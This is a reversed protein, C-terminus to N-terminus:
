KSDLLESKKIFRMSPNVKRGPASTSAAYSKQRGYRAESESIPKAVKGELSKLIQRLRMAYEIMSEGRRQKWEWRCKISIQKVGAWPRLHAADKDDPHTTTRAIKPQETHRDVFLWRWIEMNKFAATYVNKTYGNHDPAFKAGRRTLYKVMELQAHLAAVLLPTGEDDFINDIDIGVSLLDQLAEINGTSAALYLLSRAGTAVSDAIPLAKGRSLFRHILRYARAVNTLYTNHATLESWARCSSWEIDQPIISKPYNRLLHRLVWHDARKMIWYMPSIHFIDLQHLDLHESFLLTFLQLEVTADHGGWLVMHIPAHGHRNLDNSQDIKYLFKVLDVNGRKCALMLPTDQSAPIVAKISAGRGLLLKTVDISGESAALLLPTYGLKDRYELKAGHNTLLEAAAVNNRDAAMHLATEDLFEPSIMNVVKQVPYAIRKFETLLIGLGTANDERVAAHLPTRSLSAFEGGEALYRQLLSPLLHNYDEDAIAAELATTFCPSNPGEFITSVAAGRKILFEVSNPSLGEMLAFMLPTVRWPKWFAIDIPLGRALYRECVDLDGKKLASCFSKALRILTRTSPNSLISNEDANRDRPRLIDILEVNMSRYAYDLPTMGHTDYQWKAGLRLLERTCHVNGEKVALHMPSSGDHSRRDIDCGKEHLFRIVSDNDRLAAYHMPTQLADDLEELNTLWKSQLYLQMCELSDVAAALHFANGGSLSRDRRRWKQGWNIGFNHSASHDALRRLFETSNAIVSFLAADLGLHNTLGPDAGSELLIEATTFSRNSLHIHLGTNFDYDVADAPVGAELIQRLKWCARDLCDKYHTTNALLHIVTEGCTHNNQLGLKATNAHSLLCKLHGQSIPVDPVCALEMPSLLDARRHADVGNRLLQTTLRQDDHIIAHSLLRTVVDNDVVCKRDEIGPFLDLLMQSLCDWGTLRGAYPKSLHKFQRKASWGPLQTSCQESVEAALFLFASNKYVKEYSSILGVNIVHCVVEEIWDVSGLNKQLYRLISSCLIPWIGAQGEKQSEESAPLLEERVGHLLKTDQETSRELLSQFPMQGDKRRRFCDPFLKVLEEVFLLTSSQHIHHLPSGSASDFEDLEVGLSSLHRVLRLSGSRAAQQYLSAKSKWFSKPPCHDLLMDVAGNMQRDLALCIPTQGASSATQLADYKDSSLDVLDALTEIDGDRICLHWITDGNSNKATTSVNHRLLTQITNGGDLRSQSLHIPRTGRTTMAEPNNGTDLLLELVASSGSSCALHVATWEESGVTFRARKIYTPKNSEVIRELAVIDNNVIVSKLVHQPPKCRSPISHINEPIALMSLDMRRDRAFDYVITYLSTIPGQGRRRPKFCGLLALVTSDHIYYVSNTEIDREAEFRNRVAVVDKQKVVLGRRIMYQITKFGNVSLASMCMLEVLTKQQFPTSLRPTASAGAELLVYATNCIDIPSWIESGISTVLIERINDKTSLFVSLGGLACHLPTGFRSKLNIKAGQDMLYECLYPLGLLAAVHLPTFDPRLIAVVVTMFGQEERLHGACSEISEGFEFSRKRYYARMGDEAILCDHNGTAWAAVYAILWQQLCASKAESFFIRLLDMIPSDNHVGNSSLGAAHSRLCGTLTVAFATHILREHQRSQGPLYEIQTKDAVPKKDFDKLMLYRLCIEGVALYAKQESVHFFGIAERKPDVSELFEQVTYHSFEFREGDASKRILSSCRLLIDYEDIMDDESIQDSDEQVSLAVRVFRVSSQSVRILLLTKLVLRRITEGLKTAKMLIREYTAPLTPPLKSLANRRERDSPLEGLYDLQCAVWRFMGKANHVLKQTIEAKLEPNGIRIRRSATRSELESLVYLQIDDTNAEIEIHAFNLNLLDHIQVEDRSLFLMNMSHSENRRSIRSLTDVSENTDCEDLGDIVVFVEDFSKCMCEFVTSLKQLSPETALSQQSVLEDYYSELLQFSEENQRALQSVLSSMMNRASHTDKNKYTCFFYATAKRGDKSSCKLCDHLILGALVSKGAGPIGTVWLKSGPIAIWEKFDDSETFWVGTSPHRLNQVLEFDRWPNAFSAFFELVKQRNQDLFIKTEIELIEKVTSKIATLDEEIKQHQKGTEEQRSLCQALQAYSDAALALNITHKRRQITGLIDNTEDITFPWALRTSFRTLKSRSKLGETSQRLGKDLRNLITQCDHIHQFRLHTPFGPICTEPDSNIELQRSVLALHHLLLSLEKVEGLLESAERPANNVGKICKATLSFVTGALTVIGAVSASISLPDM